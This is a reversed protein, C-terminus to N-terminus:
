VVSRATLQHKEPGQRIYTSFRLEDELDPQPIRHCVTIPWDGHLNSEISKACGFLMDGIVRVVWSIPVSVM